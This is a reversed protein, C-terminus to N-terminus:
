SLWFNRANISFPNVHEWCNSINPKNPFITVFQWEFTASDFFSSYNVVLYIEMRLCKKKWFAKCLKQKYANVGSFYFGTQVPKGLNFATCEIQYNILIKGWIISNEINNRHFGTSSVSWKSGSPRPSFPIYLCLNYIHGFSCEIEM